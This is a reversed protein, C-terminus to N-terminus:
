AGALTTYRARQSPTKAAEQELHPAMGSLLAAIESAHLANAVMVVDRDEKAGKMREREKSTLVLLFRIVECSEFFFFFFDIGFIM